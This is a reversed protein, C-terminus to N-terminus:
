MLIEMMIKALIGQARGMEAQSPTTISLNAFAKKILMTDSIIGAPYRGQTPGLMNWFEMELEDDLDGAFQIDQLAETLSTMVPKRIGEHFSGMHHLIQDMRVTTVNTDDNFIVGPVEVTYPRPDDTNVNIIRGYLVDGMGKTNPRTAGMKFYILDGVYYM